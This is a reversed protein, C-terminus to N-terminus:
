EIKKVQYRIITYYDRPNVFLNGPGILYEEEHMGCIEYGNSKIYDVLRKITPIETEYSGIHLIEAVTGYNWVEIAPRTGSKKEEPLSTISDPIPVAVTGEWTATKLVAKIKEPDDPLDGINKYRAVTSNLDKPIGKLKFYTDFLVNYAKQIVKEPDGSFKVTLMKQDSKESIQPNKLKEYASMDPKKRSVFFFVAGVVLLAVICIVFILIIKKMFEGEYLIIIHFGISLMM